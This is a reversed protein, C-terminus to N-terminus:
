SEDKKLADPLLKEHARRLYEIGEDRGSRYQLSDSLFKLRHKADSIVEAWTKAIVRYRKTQKVVGPPRDLSTAEETVYDDLKNGIIWFEWHVNPQNFREDKGVTFAYDEIQQLEKRRITVNPRKLEVVLHELRNDRNQMPRSLVLDPVAGTGDLRTLPESGALEVDEGLLELHKRLVVLLRDDDGTLSYEEGFLWTEEALIRHLQRRELTQQKSVKDFLLADLGNIFALRDTIMRATVIVSTLPTRQLLQALEKLQEESLDVVEALVTRLNNPNTELAEKILRM